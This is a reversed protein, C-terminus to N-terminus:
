LQTRPVKSSYQLVLIFTFMDAIVYYAPWYRYRRVVTIDLLVEFCSIAECINRQNSKSLFIRNREHESTSPTYPGNM